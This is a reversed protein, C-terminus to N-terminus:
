SSGNKLEERQERIAMVYTAVREYPELNKSSKNERSRPSLLGSGMPKIEEELKVSNINTYALVGPNLQRTM